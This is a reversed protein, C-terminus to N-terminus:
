AGETKGCIASTERLHVEEHDGIVRIAGDALEEHLIFDQQIQVGHEIASAKIEAGNKKDGHFKVPAENVLVTFHHREAEHHGHEHRERNNEEHGGLEM